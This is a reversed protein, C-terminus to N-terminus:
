SRKKNQETIYNYLDIVTQMKIDNGDQDTIMGRTWKKGYDLEYIFYEIDETADYNDSVSAILLKIMAAEYRFYPYFITDEFEETFVDNVKVMARDREEIFTIADNFQELSIM